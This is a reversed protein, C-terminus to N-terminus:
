RAVAIAIKAKRDEYSDMHQMAGQYAQIGAFKLGPAADIAKAIEVVAPTTTV